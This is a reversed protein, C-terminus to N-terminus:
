KINRRVDRSVSSRGEVLTSCGGIRRSNCRTIGTQVWFGNHICHSTAKLTMGCAIEMDVTGLVFAGATALPGRAMWLVVTDSIIAGETSMEGVQGAVARISSADETVSGIVKKDVTRKHLVGARADDEVVPIGLPKSTTGTTCTKLPPITITLPRPSTREMTCKGGNVTPEGKVNVTRMIKKALMNWYTTHYNIEKKKKNNVFPHKDGM